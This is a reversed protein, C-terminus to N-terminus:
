HTSHINKKVKHVESNWIHYFMQEIQKLIKDDVYIMSFLFQVQPVILKQYNNDQGKWINLITEMIKIRDDFNLRTIEEETSTFWVGLAKFPGHKIQIQSLHNPLTFKADKSKGIPRIEMKTLNLKLWSCQKFQNLIDIAIDLSDLNKILLTTDDAMVSLKFETDNITISKIKEENRIKIALM